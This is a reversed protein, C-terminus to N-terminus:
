GSAWTTDGSKQFTASFTWGGEYDGDLTFDTMICSASWSDTARFLITITDATANASYVEMQAHSGSSDDPDYIGTVTMTGDGWTGLHTRATATDHATTDWTGQTDSTSITRVIGIVGIAAGTITTNGKFSSVAM